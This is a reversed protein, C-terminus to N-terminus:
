YDEDKAGLLLRALDLELAMDEIDDHANKSAFAAKDSEHQDTYRMIEDLNDYLYDLGRVPTDYKLGYDNDKPELLLRALYLDDKKPGNSRFGEDMYQDYDTYEFIEDISWPVLYPLFSSRLKRKSLTLKTGQGMNDYLYDIFM